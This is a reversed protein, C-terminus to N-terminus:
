FVQITLTHISSINRPYLTQTHTHMHAPKRAAHQGHMTKPSIASITSAPVVRLDNSIQKMLVIIKM